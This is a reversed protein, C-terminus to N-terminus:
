RGIIWGQGDTRVIDPLLRLYKEAITRLSPLKRDRLHLPAV